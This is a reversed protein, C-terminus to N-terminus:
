SREMEDVIVLRQKVHVQAHKIREEYLQEAREEIRDDDRAKLGTEIGAAIMCVIGGIVACLIIWGFVTMM